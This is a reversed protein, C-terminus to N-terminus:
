SCSFLLLAVLGLFLSVYYEKKKSIKSISVQFPQILLANIISMILYTVLIITSFVGFTKVDLKQALFLTLLFNTGSFIAQDFLVLSAQSLVIKKIRNM